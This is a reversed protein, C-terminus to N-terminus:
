RRQVVFPLKRHLSGLEETLGDMERRQTKVLNELQNLEMKDPDGFERFDVGVKKPTKLTSELSFRHKILGNLAQKRATNEKIIRILEDDHDNIKQRLEAMQHLHAEKHARFRERREELDRDYGVVEVEEFDVVKGFKKFLESQCKQDDESIREHMLRLYRLLQKHYEHMQRRGDKVSRKEQHLEKIRSQLKKLGDVTFVLAQSMDSPVREKKLFKLQDYNLTAIVDLDNLKRQKERQYKILDQKAEQVMKENIENKKHLNALDTKLNYISTKREEIAEEFDARTERLELTTDYLTEDMGNPCMDLDWGGDEDEEDDDEWEEEDDDDDDDDEDDDDNDEENHGEGPKRRKVKKRYLMALFRMYKQYKPDMASRENRPEISKEFTEFLAKLKDYLRKVEKEEADILRETRSIEVLAENKEAKKREVSDEGEKEANEFSKVILCEEYLKILKVEAMKLNYELNFKDHRLIRLEADFLVQELQIEALLVDRETVVFLNHHEEARKQAESPEASEEEELAAAAAADAMTDRETRRRTGRRAKSKRDVEPAEEPPATGQPGFANMPNDDDGKDGKAKRAAEEEEEERRKLDLEFLDLSVKTTQLRKEPEEGEKMRPEPPLSVRRSPELKEQLSKVRNLKEAVIKVAERKKDRMQFFKDNFTMKWSHIFQEQRMIQLLMKQTTMKQSKPVVYNEASKLDYDGINEKAYKIRAAFIPCEYADGPETSMFKAWMEHHALRKAAKSEQRLIGKAVKESGVKQKLQQFKQEESINEKVEEEEEVSEVTEGANEAERRLRAEEEEREMAELEEVLTEFDRSLKSVRFSSLSHDTEFAKLVVRNSEMHEFFRNFLKDRAITHKESDFAMERNLLAIADVSRQRYLQRLEEDVVFESSPIRHEFPIKDNADRGKRLKIRLAEVERRMEQKKAEAAALMKEYELRQKAEEITMAKPDAIDNASLSREVLPPMTTPYLTIRVDVETPPTDPHNYKFEHNFYFMFINGDRGSTLWVDGNPSHRVNTVRGYSFDHINLKWYHLINQIKHQNSAWDLSARPRPLSRISSDRKIEISDDEEDEDEEEEEKTVEEEEEEEEEEEDQDSDSKQEDAEEEEEEKAKEEVERKSVTSSSSSTSDVEPEPIRVPNEPVLPHLRITGDDCSILLLGEQPLVRMETISEAGSDALLKVAQVPETEKLVLSRREPMNPLLLDMVDEEEGDDEEVKEEKEEKKDAVAKEALVKWHGPEIQCRYLHGADSGGLGVWIANEDL